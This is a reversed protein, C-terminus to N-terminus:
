KEVAASGAIWSTERQGQEDQWNAGTARAIEPLLYRSGFEAGAPSRLCHSRRHKPSSQESHKHTPASHM